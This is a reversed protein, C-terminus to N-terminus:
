IDNSTRVKNIAEEAKLGDIDIGGLTSGIGKAQVGNKIIVNPLLVSFIVIFGVVSLLYTVIKSKKKLM